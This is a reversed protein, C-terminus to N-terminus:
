AAMFLGYRTLPRISAAIWAEWDYGTLALLVLAMSVELGALLSKRGVSQRVDDILTKHLISLL